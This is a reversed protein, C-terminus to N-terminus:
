RGREMRAFAARRSELEAVAELSNVQQYLKDYESKLADMQRLKDQRGREFALLDRRAAEIREAQLHRRAPEAAEEAVGLLRRADEVDDDARAIQERLTAMERADDRVSGAAAGEVIRQVRERLADRRRECEGAHLEAEHWRRVPGDLPVGDFESQARTRAPGLTRRLRRFVDDLQQRRAARDAPHPLALVNTAHMGNNLSDIDSSRV